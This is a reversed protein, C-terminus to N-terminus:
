AHLIIFNSVFIPIILPSLHAYSTHSKTANNVSNVTWAWFFKEEQWPLFLVQAKLIKLLAMINREAKENIPHGRIGNFAQEM